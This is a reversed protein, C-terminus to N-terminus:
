RGGTPSSAVILGILTFVGRLHRTAAILDELRLASTASMVVVTRARFMQLVIPIAVAATSIPEEANPTVLADATPGATVDVERADLRLGESTPAGTENVAVTVLVPPVGSPETAKVSLRTGIPVTVNAPPTATTVLEVSVAPVCTIV